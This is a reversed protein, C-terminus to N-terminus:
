KEFFLMTQINVLDNVLHMGLREFFRGSGYIADHKTRDLDFECQVVLTDKSLGTLLFVAVSQTVGRVQIQGSAVWNPSGPMADPLAKFVDLEIKSTPHEDTLFFDANSLHAILQGALSDDQIDTCTMRKMDVVVEGREPEGNESFIFVGSKLAVEGEHQNTLNRGIWRLKSREADLAYDGSPRQEAIETEGKVPLSAGLWAQLGGALVRVKSYGGESLKEFATEAALFPNGQGYVVISEGKDAILASVKNLFEVEYVCINKAKSIHSEAFAEAVRVDILHPADSSAMEKELDTPTITQVSSHSATM